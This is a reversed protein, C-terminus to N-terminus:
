AHGVLSGIAKVYAKVSNEISYGGGGLLVLRKNCM